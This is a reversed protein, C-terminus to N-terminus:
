FDMTDGRRKEQSETWAKNLTRKTEDDGESYIKKLINMLGQSPDSSDDVGAHEKKEKTQQEVKTLCEWKQSTQKKCMVLVMDRKIKKFSDKPDIPHLLNFINM